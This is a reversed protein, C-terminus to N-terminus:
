VRLLPLFSPHIGIPKTSAMVAAVGYWCDKGYSLVGGHYIQLTAKNWFTTIANFWKRKIDQVINGNILTQTLGDRNPTGDANFTNAAVRHEIHVWGPCPLFGFCKDTNQGNGAGQGSTADSDYYYDRITIIDKNLPNFRGWYRGSHEGIMWHGDSAGMGSLKVGLDITADWVDPGIYTLYAVNLVKQNGVPYDCRAVRGYGNTPNFTQIPHAKCFPVGRDVEFTHPGPFVTGDPGPVSGPTRMAADSTPIINVLDPETYGEVPALINRQPLSVKDVRWNGGTSTFVLKKGTTPVITPRGYHSPLVLSTNSTPDTWFCQATIDVDDVIVKSVSNTQIAVDGLGTIDLSASTGSGAFTPNPGNLTGDKDIWDGCSKNWYTGTARDVHIATTLGAKPHVFPEPSVNNKIEVTLGKAYITISSM